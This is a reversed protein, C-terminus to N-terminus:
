INPRDTPEKRHRQVSAMAKLVTKELIDGSAMSKFLAAQAGNTVAAKLFGLNYIRTLVIVAIEPRYVRAVLKLLVEFGSMDPLDLELVVCDPRHEQCLALGTRGTTAQVVVCEPFSAQLRDAYYERDRPNDDILVIHLSASM